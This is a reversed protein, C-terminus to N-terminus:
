RFWSSEKKWVFPLLKDDNIIEKAGHKIPITFTFRTWVGPESQVWIKGNHNEVIQKVISLGLGSGTSIDKPVNSARYFEDFVKSIENAPIGIGSDTIESIINDDANRVFLEIRGNDPTYKVANFLINSYLEEIMYQNGNILGINKDLHVSFEIHKDNTLISVSSVVKNIIDTLSFEEFETDKILRKKTLNLLDKVFTVLLNTRNYARNIFEEQNNNLTGFINNKVVDLCSIIAGLHGKIDHTVRLVYENQLKDKKELELNSLVYSEEIKISKSIIMRTLRVLLISSVSFIAGAVFIYFKNMFLDHNVFGELHYHSIIGYCETFAMLGLLVIIFATVSYSERSSFVASAVIMHFFYLIVLPNEIGGSFHLLSTLIILDTIIQFHIFLKIIALLKKSNKRNIWKLTFFHLFNLGLLIFSLFCVPVIQISVHIFKNIIFASVFLLVM